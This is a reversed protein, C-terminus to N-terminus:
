MKNVPFFSGTCSFLQFRAEMVPGTHGELPTFCFLLASLTLVGEKNPFLMVPPWMIYDSNCHNYQLKYRSETLVKNPAGTCWSTIAFISDALWTTAFLHMFAHLRSWSTWSNKLGFTLIPFFHSRLSKSRPIITPALCPPKLIESNASRRPNECMVIGLIQLSHHPFVFFM